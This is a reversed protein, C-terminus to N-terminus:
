KCGSRKTQLVLAKKTTKHGTALLGNAARTLTLWFQSHSLIIAPQHLHASVHVSGSRIGAALPQADHGGNKETQKDILFESIFLDRMIAESNATAARDAQPLFSSGATTTTGGGTSAGATTTSGTAGAASAAAASAAAVSAAADAVSAASLAAAALLSASLAAASAAAAAAAAGAASGAFYNATCVVRDAKAPSKYLGAGHLFGRAMRAPAKQM